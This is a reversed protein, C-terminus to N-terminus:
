QLIDDVYREATLNGRDLIHLEMSAELSLAMECGDCLRMRFPVRPYINYLTLNEGLSRSVRLCEDPVHLTFRYEDIVLANSTQM